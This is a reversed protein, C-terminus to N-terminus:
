VEKGLMNKGLFLASRCFAEAVCFRPNQFIITHPFKQKMAEYVLPAGGGGLAIGDLVSAQDGLLRGVEMVLTEAFDVRAKNVLDNVDILKGNHKVEGKHITDNVMRPLTSLGMEALGRGVKEYIQNVGVLSGTAQERIDGNLIMTVDTTFHGIEVAGWEKNIMDNGKDIEGNQSFFLMYLPTEAQSKVRVELTQEPRLRTRVLKEVREKLAGADIGFRSAPLGVFMVINDPIQKGKKALEKEIENIGALVLVDHTETFYWTEEQGSFAKLTGQKDATTGYFYSKGNLNVTETQARHATEISSLGFAPTVYTPVLINSHNKRDTDLAFTIKSGSHGIDLGIAIYGQSM